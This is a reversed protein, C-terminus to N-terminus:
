RKLLSICMVTFFIASCWLWVKRKEFASVAKKSFPCDVKMAKNLKTISMRQEGCFKEKFNQTLLTREGCKAFNSFASEGIHEKLDQVAELIIDVEELYRVGCINTKCYQIV